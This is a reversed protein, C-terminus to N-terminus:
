PTTRLLSYAKPKGSFLKKTRSWTEKFLESKRYQELYDENDWKSFTFLVNRQSPDQCLEVHTCGKQKLIKPQSEEFIKLFEQVGSEQFEM